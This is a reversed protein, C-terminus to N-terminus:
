LGRVDRPDLNVGPPLIFVTVLPTSFTITGDDIYPPRDKVVYTVIRGQPYNEWPAHEDEPDRRACWRTEVVLQDGELRVASIPGRYSHPTRYETTDRGILNSRM